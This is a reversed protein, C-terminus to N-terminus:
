TILNIFCWDNRKRSIGSVKGILDNDNRILEAIAARAKAMVEKVQDPVIVLDTPPPSPANTPSASAFSPKTSPQQTPQSSFVSSPQISPQVSPVRSPMESIAKQFSPSPSPVCDMVTLTASMAQATLSARDGSIAVIYDSTAVHLTSLTISGQTPWVDCGDRQGCTLIWQSLAGSHFGPLTVSSDRMGDSKFLGIWVGIGEVNQFQVRIEDGQCYVNKDIQVTAADALSFIALLIILFSAFRRMARTILYQKSRRKQVSSVISFHILSKDCVEVFALYTCINILTNNNHKHSLLLFV